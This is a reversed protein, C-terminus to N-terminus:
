ARLKAWCLWKTVKSLVNSDSKQPTRRLRGLAWQAHEGLMADEDTALRELWPIFKRDGSNGMAISLNRLWGRFKTRKLPSLRFLQKFDGESLSALTDLSPHFLTEPEDPSPAAAMLPLPLFGEETATAAKRNWPCVDQCIDCGFVHNGM